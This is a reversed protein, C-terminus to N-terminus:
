LNFFRSKGSSGGSSGKGAASGDKADWLGQLEKLLEEERKGLKEPVAIDVKVYLDGRAGGHLEPMGKGRLRMLKGGQTGAPIKLEVNGELTAVRVAGGLAATTFPIHAETHLELGRREFREDRAEHLHVILDGAGGGNPGRHGEGRMTLYQGEEIGAPIEVPITVEEQVRGQGRCDKCPTKIRQGQGGCDPCATVNVVQGFFSNQVRRVQGQGGCTGCTEKGTGGAGDCTRCKGHRKLQIKKTVGTAIEALTLTLQIQLDAGRPPGTRGRRRGGGGGFMDGGFIDGFSSFIDEFNSFGQGGGGFGGGGNMGAHGFRDYQAKKTEDSLVGYAESAEKFKEEAEKNGPNKDPHYKIALKKYASKIVDVSADKSVGLIEYYDRKTAM